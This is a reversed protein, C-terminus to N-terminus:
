QAAERLLIAVGTLHDEPVATLDMHPKETELMADHIGSRFGQPSSSENAAKHMLQALKQPIKSSPLEWDSNRWCLMFSMGKRDLLAPKLVPRSTYTSFGVRQLTNQNSLAKDFDSVEQEYLRTLLRVDNGDHYLVYVGKGILKPCCAQTAKEPHITGLETLVDDVM